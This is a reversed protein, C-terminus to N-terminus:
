DFIGEYSTILSRGVLNPSSQLWFLTQGELVGKKGRKVGKKVGKPTVKGLESKLDKWTSCFATDPAFKMFIAWHSCLFYSSSSKVGNKVRNQGMEVGGKSGRQPWKEWIQSWTREYQAFLLTQHLNWLSLEIPVCFNGIVLNSGM